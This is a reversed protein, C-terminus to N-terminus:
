LRRLVPVPPPPYSNTLSGVIGLFQGKRHITKLLLVARVRGLHNRISTEGVM